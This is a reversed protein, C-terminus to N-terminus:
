SLETALKDRQADVDDMNITQQVNADHPNTLSM